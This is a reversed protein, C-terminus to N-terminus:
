EISRVLIDEYGITTIRHSKGSSMGLFAHVCFGKAPILEYTKEDIKVPQNCPEGTQKATTSIGAITPENFKIRQVLGQRTQCVTVGYSHWAYGNCDIDAELITKKDQFDIYGWGNKGKKSDFTSIYMPCVDNLEIDNPTYNYTFDYKKLNEQTMERHCTTIVILDIKEPAIFKINMQPSITIVGAGSINNIKIDRQYFTNKDM